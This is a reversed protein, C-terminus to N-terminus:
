IFDDEKKGIIGVSSAVAATVLALTPRTLGSLVQKGQGKVEEAAIQSALSAPVLVYHDIKSLNIGFFIIPGETDARLVAEHLIGNSEACFKETDLLVHWCPLCKSGAM